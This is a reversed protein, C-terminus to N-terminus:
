AADWGLDRDLLEYLRRNPEAFHSRLRERTEPQLEPYDRDFVRPYEDLEHRAAGLFELVRAYTAAPETSLEENALV